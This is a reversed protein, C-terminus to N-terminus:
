PKFAPGNGPGQVPKTPPPPKGFPRAELGRPGAVPDSIKRASPAVEPVGEGERAIPADPTPETPPPAAPAPAAPPIAQEAVCVATLLADSSNASRLRTRCLDIAVADDPITASAAPDPPIVKWGVLGETASARWPATGSKSAGLYEVGAGDVRCAGRWSGPAPFMLSGKLEMAGESGRSKAHLLGKLGPVAILVHTVEGSQLTSLDDVADVSLALRESSVTWSMGSDTSHASMLLLAPKAAAHDRALFCMRLSGDALTVVSPHLPGELSPLFGDLAIRAPETWTIGGDTGRSRAVSAFNLEDSLPYQVFFLTVTGDAATVISPSSVSAFRVAPTIGSTDSLFLHVAENWPGDTGQLASQFRALRAVEGLPATSAPIASPSRDTPTAPDAPDGGTPPAPAAPSSPPLKWSQGKKKDTTSQALASAALLTVLMASSVAFRWRNTPRDVM